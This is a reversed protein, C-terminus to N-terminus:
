AGNGEKVRQRKMNLHRYSFFYYMLLLKSQKFIQKWRIDTGNQKKKKKKTVTANGNLKNRKLRVRSAASLM